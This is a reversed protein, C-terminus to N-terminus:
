AHIGQDQVYSIVVYVRKDAEACKHSLSLCQNNITWRSNNNPVGGSSLRHNSVRHSPSEVGEIHEFKRLTIDTRNSSIDTFMRTGYKQDWFDLSRDNAAKVTTYTSVNEVILGKEVSNNVHIVGFVPKGKSVRPMKGSIRDLERILKLPYAEDGLVGQRQIQQKSLSLARPPSKSIEVFSRRSAPKPTPKPTPQPYLEIQPQRPVEFDNTIVMSETMPSPPVVPLGHTSYGLDSPYLSAMHTSKIPSQYYQSQTPIFHSDSNPYSFIPRGNNHQWQDEHEWPWRTPLSQSDM